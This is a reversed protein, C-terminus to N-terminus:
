YVRMKIECPRVCSAGGEGQEWYGGGRQEHTVAHESGQRVEGQRGQGESYDGQGGSHYSFYLRRTCCGGRRRRGGARWVRWRATRLAPLRLGGVLGLPVMEVCRETAGDGSCESLGGRDTDEAEIPGERRGAVLAMGWRGAAWRSGTIWGRVDIAETVLRAESAAM